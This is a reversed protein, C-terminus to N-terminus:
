KGASIVVRCSVVRYITTSFGLLWSMVRWGTTRICVFGDLAFLGLEKKCPLLGPFESANCIKYGYMVPRVCFYQPGVRGVRVVGTRYHLRQTGGYMCLVGYVRACVCYGQM